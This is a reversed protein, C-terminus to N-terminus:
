VPYQTVWNSHYAILMDQRSFFSSLDIRNGHNLNHKQQSLLLFWMNQIIIVGSARRGCVCPSRRAIIYALLWFVWVRVCLCFHDHTKTNRRQTRETDMQHSQHTTQSMTLTKYTRRWETACRIENDLMSIPMIVTLSSLRDAAYLELSMCLTKKELLLDRHSYEGVFQHMEHILGFTQSKCIHRFIQSIKSCVVHNTQRFGDFHFSISRHITGFIICVIQCLTNRRQTKFFAGNLCTAHIKHSSKMSVLRWM